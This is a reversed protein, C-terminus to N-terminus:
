PIHKCSLNNCLQKREILTQKEKTLKDIELVYSEIQNEINQINNQFQIIENNYVDIDAYYVAADEPYGQLSKLAYQINSKAYKINGEEFKINSKEFNIESSLESINNEIEKIRGDITAIQQKKSREYQAQPTDEVAVSVIYEGIEFWDGSKVNPAIKFQYTGPEEILLKFNSNLEEGTSIFINNIVIRPYGLFGGDEYKWSEEYIVEKIMSADILEIFAAIIPIDSNNKISFICEFHEGAKVREALRAKFTYPEEVASESTANKKEVEYKISYNEDLNIRGESVTENKESCGSSLTLLIAIFIIIFIKRM